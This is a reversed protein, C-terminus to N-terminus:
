KKEFLSFVTGNETIRMKVLHSLSHFEVGKEVEFCWFKYRKQADLIREKFSTFFAEKEDPYVRSRQYMNFVEEKRDDSLEEFLLLDPIDSVIEEVLKCKGVLCDIFLDGTEGFSAVRTVEKIFKLEETTMKTTLILTFHCLPRREWNM